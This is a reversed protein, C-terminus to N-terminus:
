FPRDPFELNMQMVAPMNTIAWQLLEFFEQNLKNTRTRAESYTHYQGFLDIDQYRDYVIWPRDEDFSDEAIQRQTCYREQINVHEIAM